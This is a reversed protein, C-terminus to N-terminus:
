AAMATRMEAMRERALLARGLDARRCRALVAACRAVSGYGATEAIRAASSGVLGDASSSWGMRLTVHAALADGHLLPLAAYYSVALSDWPRATPEDIDCEDWATPPYWGSVRGRWDCGHVRHAPGDRLSEYVDRVLAASRLTEEREYTHGARRGVEVRGRMAKSVHQRTTGFEAALQTQTWGIAALAQLRRVTGIHSM